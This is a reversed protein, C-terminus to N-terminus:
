RVFRYAGEHDIIYVRGRRFTKTQNLWTILQGDSMRENGRNDFVVYKADKKKSTNKLYGNITNYSSAEKITKLEFGSGFDAYSIIRGTKKGDIIESIEDRVFNYTVGFENLKMATEIEHPYKAKKELKLSESAFTVGHEEGTYLNQRLTM